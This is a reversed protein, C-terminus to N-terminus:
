FMKRFAKAVAETTSSLGDLYSRVSPTERWVAALRNAIRPLRRMLALPRVSRPLAAVWQNEYKGGGYDDRRETHSAM